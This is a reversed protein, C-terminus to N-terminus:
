KKPHHKDYLIKAREKVPIYALKPKGGSVKLAGARNAKKRSERIEIERQNDGRSAATYADRAELKAKDRQFKEMNAKERADVPADPLPPVDPLVNIGPDTFALLLILTNM